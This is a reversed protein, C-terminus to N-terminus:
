GPTCTEKSVLISSPELTLSRRIFDKGLLFTEDHYSNKFRSIMYDNYLLAVMGTKENTNDSRDVHRTWYGILVSFENKNTAQSPTPLLLLGLILGATIVVAYTKVQM